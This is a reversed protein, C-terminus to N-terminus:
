RHSRDLHARADDLQTSNPDPHRRDLTWAAAIEAAAYGLPAAQPPQHARQGPRHLDLDCTNAVAAIRRVVGPRHRDHWDGVRAWSADPGSYAASHAGRLWTLEEVVAPHWMWCAPLAADPYHLYVATLWECLDALDQGAAAPDDALLWSRVPPPGTGDGTGALTDAVRTVEHALAHVQGTLKEVRRDTREHARALATLQDDHDPVTVM